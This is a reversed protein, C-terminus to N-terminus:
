KEPNPDPNFQLTLSAHDKEVLSFGPRKCEPSEKKISRFGIDGCFEDDKLVLYKRQM